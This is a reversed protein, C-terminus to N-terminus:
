WNDSISFIMPVDPVSVISPSLASLIKFALLPVFSVIDKSFAELETNTLKPELIELSIVPSPVASLILAVVATPAVVPVSVIVFKSSTFPLTFLSVITPSLASLVSSPPAFSSIKTPPSPASLKIPPVPFSVTEYARSM